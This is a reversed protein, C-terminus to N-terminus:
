VVLIPPGGTTDYACALCRCAGRLGALSGLRSTMAIIRPLHLTGPTTSGRRAPRPSLCRLPQTCYTAALQWCFTSSFLPPPGEPRGRCCWACGCACCCACCRRRVCAPTGRSPLHERRRTPPGDAADALFGQPGGACDRGCGAAAAGLLRRRSRLPAALAHCDDVDLPARCFLAGCLGVLLIIPM